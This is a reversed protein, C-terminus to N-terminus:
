TGNGSPSKLPEQTWNRVRRAGDGEEKSVTATAEGRKAKRAKLIVSHLRSYLSDKLVFHTHAPTCTHKRPWSWDHSWPTRRHIIPLTFVTARRQQNRAKEPILSSSSMLWHYGGFHCFQRIVKHKTAM